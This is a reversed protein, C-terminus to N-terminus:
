QGGVRVRNKYKGDGPRVTTSGVLVNVVLHAGARDVMFPVQSHPLLGRIVEQFEKLSSVRRGDVLRIFDNPLIGARQAPGSVNVVVVGDAYTTHVGNIIVGDTVEIGVMPYEPLESEPARDTVSEVTMVDLSHLFDSM